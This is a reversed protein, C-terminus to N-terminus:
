WDKTRLVLSLAILGIVVVVAPLVYADVIGAYRWEISRLVGPTVLLAILSLVM